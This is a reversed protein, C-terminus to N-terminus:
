GHSKDGFRKDNKHIYKEWIDPRREATREEREKQRWDEINAHHGSLLVEPVQIGKVVEPRTYHPHDLLEETFSDTKASEEDGLVGPILRVVSDLIVLSPLEGNTLVYDGISIEDTVVSERIREDIGKYHGCIFIMNKSKSLEWAKEQTYQDGQPTPFVVMAESSDKMLKKAAEVAKLLPEAMMIMGTGGGFPKDDIQKFNGESFDRVNILHYSVLEKKVARGLISESIVAEVLEPFPTIIFINTM